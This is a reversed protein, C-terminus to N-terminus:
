RQAVDVPVPESVTLEHPAEAEVASASGHRRWRPFAGLLQELGSVDAFASTRLTGRNALPSYRGGIWAVVPIMLFPVEHFSYDVGLDSNQIVQAYDLWLPLFLISVITMAGFVRWWRPHRMGILALPLVSPKMLVFATAPPWVTGLALAAAVWLAPNGKVVSLLTGDSVILLGIVAWALAGPRHHAIALVIVSMPILWWFVHPVVLFPLFVILMPPPYLSDGIEVHYPGDLQRPLYFGRGAVFDSARDVYIGLDLGVAPPITLIGLFIRAMGVVVLAAGLMLAIKELGRIAGAQGPRISL